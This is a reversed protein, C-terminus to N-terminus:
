EAQGYRDARSIRRSKKTDKGVGGREDKMVWLGGQCHTETGDYV